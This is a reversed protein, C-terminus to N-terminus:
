YFPHKNLNKLRLELMSPHFRHYFQSKFQRGVQARNDLNTQILNVTNMHYLHVKRTIYSFSSLETLRHIFGKLILIIDYDRNYMKCLPTPM